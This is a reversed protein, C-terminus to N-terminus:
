LKKTENTKNVVKILCLKLSLAVITAVWARMSVGNPVDFLMPTVMASSFNSGVHTAKVYVIKVFCIFYPVSRKPVLNIDAQGLVAPLNLTSGFTCGLSDTNWGISRIVAFLFRLVDVNVLCQILTSPSVYARQEYSPHTAIGLAAIRQVHYRTKINCRRWWL